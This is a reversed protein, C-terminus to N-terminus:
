PNISGTHKMTQKVQTSEKNQKRWAVSMGNSYRLDIAEIDNVRTAFLQEYVSLFRQLRQQQQERGLVLKIGNNLQLSLARRTTLDVQSVALGHANLAANSELYHQTLVAQMNEPGNFVPLGKPYTAQDPKFLEGKLNVLGDDMWYALAKQEVLFLSLTDPWIRRVSAQAVWPLQEVQERVAQVDLSFFGQTKIETIAKSLMAEEIYSFEGQVRVTKVPLTAPNMVVMAIWSLLSLVAVVLLGTLLRRPNLRRKFGSIGHPEHYHYAAQNARM